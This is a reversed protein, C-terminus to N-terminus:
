NSPVDAFELRQTERLAQLRLLMAGIGLVTALCVVLMGLFPIMSVVLLCLEGVVYRALVGRRGASVRTGLLVRGVWMAVVIRGLCIMVLYAIAGLLALPLGIFTVAVAIMALPMLVVWGLGVLASRGTVTRLVTSADTFLRPLLLVLIIGTLLWGLMWALGLLGFVVWMGRGQPVPLAMVRGGVYAGPDIHVKAPAIRYRLNGDIKAHPGVRLEGGTVDADGLVTGNIIVTGGTAVLAGHITGDVRVTGGAVYANRGVAAASDLQVDGGAVTINRDIAATIYLKGGAARLAGHIRGGISQSGGAGVYDGGSAGSFRLEGGTILIDGPVSDTIQPMSGSAVMDDGFRHYQPERDRPNGCAATGLLVGFAIGRFGAVRNPM